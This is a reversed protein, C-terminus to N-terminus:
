WRFWSGGPRADFLQWETWRGSLLTRVALQRRILREPVRVIDLRDRVVASRELSIHAVAPVVVEDRNRRAWVELGLESRAVADELEPEIRISCM